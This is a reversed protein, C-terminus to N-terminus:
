AKLTHRGGRGEEGLTLGQRSAALARVIERCFAPLDAPGRSTVLLYGAEPCVVVEEDVWEAGANRLDTRLSPWSTLRKGRVLDAEILVWPAHSLAAIPKGAG